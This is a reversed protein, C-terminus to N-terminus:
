RLRRLKDTKIVSDRFRLVMDGPSYRKQLNIPTKAVRKDHLDMQWQMARETIIKQM